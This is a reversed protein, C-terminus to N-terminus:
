GIQLRTSTIFFILETTLQKFVIKQNLLIAHDFVTSMAKYFVGNYRKPYVM